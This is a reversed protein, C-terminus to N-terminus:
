SCRHRHVSFSRQDAQGRLSRAWAGPVDGSSQIFRRHTHSNVSVYYHIGASLGGSRPVCGAKLDDLELPQQGVDRHSPCRIWETVKEYQRSSIVRARPAGWGSGPGGDQFFFEVPARLDMPSISARSRPCADQTPDGIRYPPLGVVPVQTGVEEPYPRLTAPRVKPRNSVPELLRRLLSTRTSATEDLRRRRM